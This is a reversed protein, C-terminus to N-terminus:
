LRKRQVQTGSNFPLNWIAPRPGSQPHTRLSGTRGERRNEGMRGGRGAQSRSNSSTHLEPIGSSSDGQTLHQSVLRPLSPCPVGPFLFSSSLAMSLKLIFSFHALSCTGQSRQSLMRELSAPLPRLHSSSTPHPHPGKSWLEPATPSPFFPQFAGGM